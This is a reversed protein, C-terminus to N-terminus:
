DLISEENHLMAFLPASVTQVVERPLAHMRLSETWPGTALAQALLQRSRVPQGTTALVKAVSILAPVRKGPDAIAAINAEARDYSGAAAMAEAVGTLLGVQLVSVHMSSALRQVGQMVRDIPEGEFYSQTLQLPALAGAWEPLITMDAHKEPDSISRAIAEAQGALEQARNHLGATALAKAVAILVQAKRPLDTVTNAIVEAKDLSGAAALAEAVKALLQEQSKPATVLRAIAEAQGALEQAKDHLGATALAKAMAILVQAKRSQDTITRAIAEAQDFWGAGAVDETLGVLLDPDTIQRAAAKVEDALQAAQEHLGAASFGQALEVLAVASALEGTISHAVTQAQAAVQTARDRLGAAVLAKVVETLAAVQRSELTFQSLTEIEAAAQRAQQHLGAAELEAVVERLSGGPAHLVTISRAMTEAQVAVQRAGDRLGATALIKALDALVHAETIPSLDEKAPLPKNALKALLAARQNQAPVAHAAAEARAAAQKARDRLGVATLVKALATLRKAQGSHGTILQAAAEAQLAIKRARERLGASPPRAALSVLMRAGYPSMGGKLSDAANAAHVAALRTPANPGTAALAAAVCRLVEAQVSPNTISRAMAVAQDVEHEAEEDMGAASLAAALISLAEGQRYQNTLSRAATEAQDAVHKARDCLGEAAFAEAVETLTWARDYADTVSCATTEAQDLVEEARDHLGANALAKGMHALAGVRLIPDTILGALTEARDYLGVTALARAVWMLAHARSTGIGDSTVSRVLTEAEDCWYADALEEAARLLWDARLKGHPILRAAAEAQTAARGARDRLGAATLAEATGALAWAEDAGPELRRSFGAISRTMAEARDYLGAGALVEVIKALHGALNDEALIGTDAIRAATEAQLVVRAVRDPSGAAAYMAALRILATTRDNPSSISHALAEARDPLGLLAWVAPLDVPIETDRSALDDRHIALRVMATLDPDPQALIVATAMALEGQAAADSGSLVLMRDHRTGDRACALLRETDGTALLMRFYGRLLYAPTSTPWGESRYQDAWAHLRGRYTSLRRDGFAAVAEEHLAEHALLYVRDQQDSTAWDDTRSTFTRGTVGTLTPGIEFPALGTLEALDSLTLGGGAATLLGLLDHQALTGNLLTRLELEALDRIAVAYASKSLARSLGTSRLPHDASVDPPLPPDPRSAVIVKLGHECHKPLLSAISPMGRALSRDEDLGDVVLVLRDGRQDLRQAAARLLLRYKGALEGVAPERPLGLLEELQGLVAAAFAASDSQSAYRATVFFSVVVTRPPPHLVFWSMLASKGSWADAVWWLYSDPGNCFAAMDALVVARDLLGERPAIDRVQELYERWGPRPATAAYFNLVGVSGFAYGAPAHV